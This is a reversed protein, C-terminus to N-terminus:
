NKVVEIRDIKFDTHEGAVSCGRGRVLCTICYIRKNAECFHLRGIDEQGCVSCKADDSLCLVLREGRSNQEFRM